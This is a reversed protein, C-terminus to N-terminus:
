GVQKAIYDAKMICNMKMSVPNIIIYNMGYFCKIIYSIIIYISFITNLFLNKM